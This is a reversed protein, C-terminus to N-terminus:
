AEYAEETLYTEHLSPMSWGRARVFKGAGKRLEPLKTSGYTGRCGCGNGEGGTSVKLHM